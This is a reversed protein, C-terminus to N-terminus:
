DHPAELAIDILGSRRLTAAPYTPDEIIRRLSFDPELRRLAALVRAAQDPRGGARHLVYLHRMPARFGPARAYAAQYHRAADEHRGLAMAALGALAQWWPQFSSRGAIDAGKRAAALAAEASGARLHAGCIAAYAFANHPSANLADQALAYGAEPDGDLMVRIQSSLALVLPNPEHFELAKRAFEDAEASLRHWDADVREVAAIQCLQARWAYARANPAQDIVGALIENAQAVRAGDFTFMARAALAMQSDAWTAADSRRPTSAAAGFAADATQFALQAFEPAELNDVASGALSASRSWYVKGSRSDSLSVRLFQHGDGPLCDVTVTFGRDPVTIETVGAGASYIDIEAFEAVLGGIADALAHSVFGPATGVAAVPNLILPLIAPSNQGHAPTVATAAVAGAGGAHGNQASAELAALDAAQVQARSPARIAREQRLWDEFAPDPIDVGELYERGQASAERDAASDPEIGDVWVAERDACLRDADEGLARRIQMLAQRLSGAAQDAGRDSWLRSELWRRSRRREPVSTLMALVARAKASRPTCDDGRQDLLRVTGVLQLRM